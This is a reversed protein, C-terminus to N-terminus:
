PQPSPPEYDKQAEASWMERLKDRIESYELDDDMLSKEIFEIDKKKSEEEANKHFPHEDLWEWFQVSTLEDAAEFKEHRWIQVLEWIMQDYTLVGEREANEAFELNRSRFAMNSNKHTPHNDLWDWFQEQTTAPWDSHDSADPNADVPAPAGGQEDASLEMSEIKEISNDLVDDFMKQWEIKLAAKIKEYPVGNRELATIYDDDEWRQEQSADSYEPRSNLWDYFEREEDSVIPLLSGELPWCQEQEEGRHFKPPPELFDEDVNESETDAGFVDDWLRAREKKEPALAIGGLELAIGDVDDVPEVANAREIPATPEGPGIFVGNVFSGTLLSDELHAWEPGPEDAMPNMDTDPFMKALEERAADLTAQITARSIDSPITGTSKFSTWDMFNADGPYAFAAVTAM